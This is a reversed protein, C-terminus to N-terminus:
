KWLRVCVVVYVVVVVFRRRRQDVIDDTGDGDIVEAAAVDEAAM